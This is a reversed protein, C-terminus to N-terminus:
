PITDQADKDWCYTPHTLDIQKSLLMPPPYISSAATATLKNVKIPRRWREQSRQASRCRRILYWMRIMSLLPLFHGHSVWTMLKAM